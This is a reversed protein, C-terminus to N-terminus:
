SQKEKAFPAKRNPLLLLMSTRARYEAYDTRRAANHREMMPISVFLFLNKKRDHDIGSRHQTQPSIPPNWRM